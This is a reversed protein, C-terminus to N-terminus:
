ALLFERLERSFEDTSEVNVIHRGPLSVHRGIPVSAAISQLDSPPCVPDDNGSIALVPMRVGGLSGRLDACALAACCGCYADISVGTFIELMAKVTEPRAANFAPGFWRRATAEALPVLGHARVQEIRTQWGEASGIKSATACLVLRGLRAGANIALWQGILGGISLGCFHARDIQLADLLALVDGGLDALVYPSPPASSDGHGRQDYRLVRFHASLAPLQANWMHLNTGLSNSMLLWPRDADGDIRFHLRHTPLDLFPM